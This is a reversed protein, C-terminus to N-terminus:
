FEKGETFVKKIKSDLSFLEGEIIVLDADKGKKISGVRESIDTNKAANITIGKLAAEKSLGHKVALSACLYLNDITIEPHDTIIAFDIGEDEMYGNNIAIYLPAYFISRTVENLRIISDDDKSCSCGTLMTSFSTFLVLILITLKKM